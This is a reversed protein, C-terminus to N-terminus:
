EDIISVGNGMVIIRHDSGFVKKIAKIFANGPEIVSNLQEMTIPKTEFKGEKSQITERVANIETLMQKKSKKVM